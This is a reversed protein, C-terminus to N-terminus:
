ISKNRKFKAVVDVVQQNQLISPNLEVFKKLMKPAKEMASELQLLAEKSKGLSFLVAAKYFLFLPKGGTLELGAETQELAEEFFEGKYL